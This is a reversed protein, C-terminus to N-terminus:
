ASMEENVNDDLPGFTKVLTPWDEIRGTALEVWRQPHGPYLDSDSRRWVGLLCDLVETGNVPEEPVIMEYRM